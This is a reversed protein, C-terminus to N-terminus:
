DRFHPKCPRHGVGREAAQAIRHSDLIAVSVYCSDTEFFSVFCLCFCLGLSTGPVCSCEIFMVWYQSDGLPGLCKHGQQGYVSGSEKQFISNKWPWSQHEAMELM